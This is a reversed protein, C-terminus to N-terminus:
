YYRMRKDLNYIVARRSKYIRTNDLVEFELPKYEENDSVLTLTKEQIKNIRKIILEREGTDIVYVYNLKIEDLSRLPHRDTLVYEGPRFTELMSEGNIEFSFGLGRFGPIYYPILDKNTVPDVAGDLFGAVAPAPVHLINPELEVSPSKVEYYPMEEQLQPIHDFMDGQGSLLWSKSIKLESAIARLYVEKVSGRKVAKRLGDGSISGIMEALKDFSTGFRSNIQRLRDEITQNNTM